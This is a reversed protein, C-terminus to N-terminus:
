LMSTGSKGPICRSRQCGFLKGTALPLLLAEDDVVVVATVAVADVVLLLSLFSSGISRMKTPLVISKVSSLGSSLWSAIARCHSNRSAFSWPAILAHTRAHTCTQAHPM